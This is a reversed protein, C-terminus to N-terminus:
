SLSNPQTNPVLMLPPREPLALSEIHQNTRAVHTAIDRGLQEVSQRVRGVEYIEAHLESHKSM